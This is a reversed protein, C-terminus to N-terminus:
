GGESFLWVSCATEVTEPLDTELSLAIRCAPGPQLPLRFLIWSWGGAEEHWRHPTAHVPLPEGDVTAALRVIGYLAHHHWCVGDRALTAALLVESARDRSPVDLAGALRRRVVQRDREDSYAEANEFTGALDVYLARGNVVARIAPLDAPDDRRLPIAATETFAAALPLSEGVGEDRAPWRRRVAEDVAVPQRSCQLVAVEFARLRLRLFAGRAVTCVPAPLLDARPYLPYLTCSPWDAPVGCDDDFTVTVECPAFAPNHLFITGEGGAFHAYGYPEARWPDGLIRRPHRLLHGCDDLWACTAALFGRDLEDLLSLDGWLQVLLSGRAIDMVWADRWGERGMYNAWRWKSIWVGLSDGCPLPITEWAHHAAQDFSLTVSQRLLRAPVDAATSGEMLIDREYLSEGHLLWWPSRFHWYYMYFIDPCERRIEDLIAIFADAIPEVAYKGPLHRHSPEHCVLSMGDFKFGRVGNERVHHLLADRFMGGWKGEALCMDAPSTLHPNPAGAHFGMPGSAPSTWLGPAMGLARIRQFVRGPGDPFFRPDFDKLDGLPNYWGTDIWYRDFRIGRRCLEELAALNEQLMEGTLDTPEEIGAIDHIGYCHFMRQLEPRRPGHRELYRVFAPGVGGAQGAGFVLTKGTYSEGPALTVGPWAALRLTDGDGVSIGAPHAIGCFIEGGIALPVGMGGGRAEFDGQLLAPNFELITQPCTGTNRVVLQKHLAPDDDSTWYTVELAFDPATESLRIRAVGDEVGASYGDLAFDAVEREPEGIVVQGDVLFSGTAYREADPLSMAPTRRDLGRAQVALLNEGDFRLARYADSGPELRFVPASHWVGSPSAQGALVGNCYVRYHLWDQNDWGGLVLSVSEGAAAAPLALRARYWGYGPYVVASYGVGGVPFHNLAAAHGWGTEDIDPCHFGRRFGMEEDPPLATGSGAHFRWGPIDIRWSAADLILRCVAFRHIPFRRGTIRNAIFAARDRCGHPLELELEANGIRFVGDSASAFSNGM